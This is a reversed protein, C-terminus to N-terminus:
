KKAVIKTKEAVGFCHWVDSFLDSYTIRDESSLGRFPLPQKQTNYFVSTTFSGLVDKAVFVSRYACLPVCVCVCVFLTGTKM